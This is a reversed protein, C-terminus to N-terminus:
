KLNIIMTNIYKKKNIQTKIIKINIFTFNILKYFNNFDFNDPILLLILKFKKNKILLNIICAININNLGLKLKDNKNYETGGWPLDFIIVDQKLKFIYELSDNNYIKYKLKNFGYVNFNHQIIDAHFKNLEIINLFKCQEVIQLSIGGMGGNADTIVIDDINKFYKKILTLYLESIKVYSISYLGIKSIKLLKYDNDSKINKIKPFILKVKYKFDSYDLLENKLEPIFKILKYPKNLFCQENM